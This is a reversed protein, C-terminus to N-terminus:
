HLLCCNHQFVAIHPKHMALKPPLPIFCTYRYGNFLRLLIHINQPIKGRVKYTIWFSNCGNGSSFSRLCHTSSFWREPVKEWACPICFWNCFSPVIVLVILLIDMYVCSWWNRWAKSSTCYFDYSPNCQWDQDWVWVLNRNWHLRDLKELLPFTITQTSLM